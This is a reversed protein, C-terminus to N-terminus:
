FRRRFPSGACPSACLGHLQSPQRPRDPVRYTRSSLGGDLPLHHARRSVIFQDVGAAVADDVPQGVARAVLAEDVVDKRLHADAELRGANRELPRRKVDHDLVRLPQPGTEHPGVSHALGLDRPDIEIDPFPGFIDAAGGVFHELTRGFHALIEFPIRRETALVREIVLHPGLAQGVIHGPREIMREALPMEDRERGVTGTAEVIGMDGLQLLHQRHQRQDALNADLVAQRARQQLGIDAGMGALQNEGAGRSAAGARRHAGRDHDAVQAIERLDGVIPRAIVDDIEEVIIEIRHGLRDRPM